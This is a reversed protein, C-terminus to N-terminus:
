GRLVSWTVCQISATQNRLKIVPCTVLSELRPGAKTGVVPNKMLRKQLYNILQTGTPSASPHAGDKGLSVDQAKPCAEEGGYEGGM